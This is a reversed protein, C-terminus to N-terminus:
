EAQDPTDVAGASAEGDPSTSEEASEPVLIPQEQVHRQRKSGQERSSSARDEAPTNSGAEREGLAIAREKALWENREEEWNDPRTYGKIARIPVPDTQGRKRKIVSLRELFRAQSVKEPPATSPLEIRLEGSASLRVVDGEATTTVDETGDFPNRSASGTAGLLSVRPQVIAPVGM